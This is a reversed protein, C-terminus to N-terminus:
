AGGWHATLLLLSEKVRERLCGDANLWPHLDFDGNGVGSQHVDRFRLIAMAVVAVM